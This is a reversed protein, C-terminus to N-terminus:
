QTEEKISDANDDPSNIPDETPSGTSGDEEKVEGGNNFLRKLVTKKEEFDPGFSIDKLECSQARRNYHFYLYLLYHQDDRRDKMKIFITFYDPSRYFWTRLIDISNDRCDQLFIGFRDILRAGSSKKGINLRILHGIAERHHPNDRTIVHLMRENNKRLQKESIAGKGPGPAAFLCCIATIAVLSKKKMAFRGIFYSLTGNTVYTGPM